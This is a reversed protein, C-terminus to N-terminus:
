HMDADVPVPVVAPARHAVESGVTYREESARRAQGPLVEDRAVAEVVM